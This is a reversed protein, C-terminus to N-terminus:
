RRMRMFSSLMISCPSTIMQKLREFDVQGYRLSMCTAIAIMKAESDNTIKWKKADQNYRYCKYEGCSLVEDIIDSPSGFSLGSSLKIMKDTRNDILRSLDLAEILEDEIKDHIQFINSDLYSPSWETGDLFWKVRQEDDSKCVFSGREFGYCIKSGDRRIISVIQKDGSCITNVETFGLSVIDVEM